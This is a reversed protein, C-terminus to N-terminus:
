TMQVAGAKGAGHDGRQEVVTWDKDEARRREGQLPLDLKFVPEAYGASHPERGLLHPLVVLAVRDLGTSWLFAPREIEM